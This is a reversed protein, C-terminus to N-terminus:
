WVIEETEAGFYKRRGREVGAWQLYVAAYGLCWSQQIM